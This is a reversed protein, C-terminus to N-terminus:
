AGGAHGAALSNCLRSIKAMIRKEDPSLSKLWERVPENGRESRYFVVKLRLADDDPISQVMKSVGKDVNGRQNM